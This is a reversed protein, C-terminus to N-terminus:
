RPGELDHLVEQVIQPEKLVPRGGWKECERPFETLLDDIRATLDREAQVQAQRWFRLRLWFVIGCMTFGILLAVVVATTTARHESVWYEASGYPASSPRCLAYTAAGLPPGTAGGVALGLIIGQFIPWFSRRRREVTQLCALLQRVRTLLRTRKYHDSDQAPDRVLEAMIDLDRMTSPGGWTECERPFESMLEDIKAALDREAQVRAKALFRLRLWIMTGCLVFGSLLGLILGTATARHEQAWYEASGYRSSPQLAAYTGGGLPGGLAGGVVLGLVVGQLLPWFLGRLRVVKRLCELLQSVRTVLRLRRYRESEQEAAPAATPLLPGPRAKETLAVAPEERAAPAPATAAPRPAAPAREAPVAVPSPLERLLQAADRPREDLLGVCCHISDIQERPTKHVVELERAWGHHMERTVDGVLLQYWLVGLSHLDQRPDPAEGRRQEPSMYLPTGAGRYLSVQESLSLQHAAVTGIRSGQAAQRAVVGGIGFDALKITNDGMLVNAPKLDRHVLGRQHAFALAETVQTILPLVEDPTLGRGERAQRAALWHVLDGGPVYEYVLFPTQHDLNYGYLRVIRASWAEGGAKMLRELNNREQRLSSLLAPDLCFKIALPLYQLSPSGARYVAGFGGAGILEELRYETGPLTCPAFYPPVDIPLLQLLAHPDDVKMTPPMTLGGSVRDPVMSRQVCAPIAALYEVARSKDVAAADPALEEVAAVAQRRAEDPPVAALEALAVQCEVPKKGKFWGAWLRVIREGFFNIAKELVQGAAAGAFGAEPGAVLAGACGGIVPLIGEVALNMLVGRRAAVTVM